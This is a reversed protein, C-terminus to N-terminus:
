MINCQLADCFVINCDLANRQMADCQMTHCYLVNRYIDKCQVGNRRMANCRTVDCKCCMGNWEMGIREVRNRQM